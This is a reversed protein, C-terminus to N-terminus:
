RASGIQIEVTGDPDIKRGIGHLPPMFVGQSIGNEEKMKFGNSKLLHYIQTGFDYSEADGLTAIVLIQKDRPLGLLQQKLQAGRPDNLNRTEPGIVITGATVGGQQGYSYASGPGQNVTPQQNPSSTQAAGDPFLAIGGAVGLLLIGFIFGSWAVKKNLRPFVVGLVPGIIALALGAIGVARDFM